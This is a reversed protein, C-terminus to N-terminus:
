ALWGLTYGNCPPSKPSSLPKRQLTVNELTRSSAFALWEKRWFRLFEVAEVRQMGITLDAGEGPCFTPSKSSETTRCFRFSSVYHRKVLARWNVVSALCFCGFCFLYKLGWFWLCFLVTLIYILTKNQSTHGNHFVIKKKVQTFRFAKISIKIVHFGSTFIDKLTLKTKKMLINKFALLAQHM